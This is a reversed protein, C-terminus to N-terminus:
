SRSVRETNSDSLTAYRASHYNAAIVAESEIVEDGAVIDGADLGESAKFEDGTIEGSMFQKVREIMGM